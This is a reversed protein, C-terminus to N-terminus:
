GGSFRNLKVNIERIIEPLLHVTTFIRILPFQARSKVYKVAISQEEYKTVKFTSKRKNEKGTAPSSSFYM